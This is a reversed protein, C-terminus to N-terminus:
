YWPENTALIAILVGGAVAAAVALVVAVTTKCPAFTEAQVSTVESAPLGWGPIATDTRPTLYVITQGGARRIELTELVGEFVRGEAATEFRLNREPDVEVIEGDTTNVRTPEKNEIAKAILPLHDKRVTHWTTCSTTAVILLLAPKCM